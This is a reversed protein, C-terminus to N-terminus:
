LRECAAVYLAAAVFFVLGAGVYVLDLMALRRAHPAAPEVKRCIFELARAAGACISKMCPLLEGVSSLASLPM